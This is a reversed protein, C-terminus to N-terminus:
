HHGPRIPVGPDFLIMHPGAPGVGHKKRVSTFDVWASGDQTVSTLGGEGAVEFQWIGYQDNRPGFEPDNDLTRLVSNTVYLREADPSLRMMCPHPVSVEALLRPRDVDSIDYQQVTDSFWNAIFLHRDDPTIVLDCPVALNDLVQHFALLGDEDDDEWLWLGGNAAVTYGRRVNEAHLWDSETAGSNPGLDVTQIIKEQEVDWVAVEDGNPGYPAQLVDGPYGWTTSVARNIEPKFALDYMYKPGSEDETREPGPGFHTVFEGSRDDLVVVGGPGTTETDAGLMSVLISGGELPTVTHPAQYGSDEVLDDQVAVLRPRRPQKSVDFVHMRSSFLGPVFLREQDLSYGFHHVNDGVTPLDARTLIRGYQGRKRPDAGVVALFDPNVDDGSNIAVVYLFEERHGDQDLGDQRDPGQTVGSGLADSSGGGGAHGPSCAALVLALLFFVVLRSNRIRASRM